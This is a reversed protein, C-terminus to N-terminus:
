VCENGSANLSRSKQGPCKDVKYFIQKVNKKSFAQIKLQQIVKLLMKFYCIHFIRSAKFKALWFVGIGLAFSVALLM